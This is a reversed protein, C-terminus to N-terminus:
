DSMYIDSFFAYSINNLFVVQIRLLLLSLENNQKTWHWVTFHLREERREKSTRGKGRGRSFFFSSSSSFPALCLLPLSFVGSSFFTPSLHSFVTM